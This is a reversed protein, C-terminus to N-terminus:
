SGPHRAARHPHSHKCSCCLSAYIFSCDGSTFLLPISLLFGRLTPLLKNRRFSQGVPSFLFLAVVWWVVPSAAVSLLLQWFCPSLGFPVQEQSRKTKVSGTLLAGLPLFYFGARRPRLYIRKVSLLTAEPLRQSRTLLM